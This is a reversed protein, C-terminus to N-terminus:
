APAPVLVRVPERVAGDPLNGARMVFSETAEYGRAAFVTGSTMLVDEIMVMGVQVARIPIELVRSAIGAEEHLADFAELVAPDYTDRVARLTGFVVDPTHGRATLTDYDAAVRLIRSGVPAPRGTQPNVKRWAIREGSLIELVPELRPINGLLQRTTAPVRAVMEQEEPDLPHGHFLRESTDPPLTICGIQSLMAAVEIQWPDPVDLKQAVQMAHRKIRSARGFAVPNTLALVDVMAKISGMLTQELLVREAEILRHQEAAARFAGLLEDPPCPKTLFRFIQGRNVAAVASNLDAHGTLLIRVTAPSRERVLGLFTAGDMGPMRMDSLVVAIPGQERLLELGQAGSTATLVEYHRRLHLSLGAVVNPEDDVCLVRPLTM